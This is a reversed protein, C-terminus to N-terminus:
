KFQLVSPDWMDPAQYGLLEVTTAAINSLGLNGPQAVGIRGGTVNEYLILPVPNLTHATKSKAKGNKDRSV